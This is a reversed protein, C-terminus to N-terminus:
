PQRVPQIRPAPLLAAHHPQPRPVCYLARATPLHPNDHIPGNAQAHQWLRCLMVGSLLLGHGRTSRVLRRGSRGRMRASTRLAVPQTYHSVLRTGVATYRWVPRLRGEMVRGGAAARGTAGAICVGGGLGHGEGRWM